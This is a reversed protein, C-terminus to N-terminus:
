PDKAKKDTGVEAEVIELKMGLPELLALFTSMRCDGKSIIRSVTQGNAAHGSKASWQKQNLGQDRAIKDAKIILARARM